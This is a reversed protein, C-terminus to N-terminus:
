GEEFHNKITRALNQSIKPVESLEELTAERINQVTRFHELLAQRRVPGVGPIKELSSQLGERVRRKRHATIAFRHAEDRVRQLLYLGQSNRPLLLPQMRGPLFLEEERKALGAVPVTDLLDFRDLVEVARGLQGKGGDILVLDPLAAFSPDPKKWPERSKEHSVKWRRFRRTLVEEMSAFDDPGSVTRINFRRYHSKQPQGEQFVVMSGVQAAGQMTSIDYCEIRQPPSDLNLHEQLEDLAEEAREIQTDKQTRLAKLMECANEAAMDILSQQDPGQPLMLEVKQGGRQGRLWKKIIRAEEVEQPLLINEPVNPAQDYFQKIVESLVEEDPIKEAGEVMFYERGTLKGGRIFFVQICAERESRAM